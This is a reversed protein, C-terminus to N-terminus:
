LGSGDCSDLRALEEESARGEWRFGDPKYSPRRTTTSSGDQGTTRSDSASEVKRRVERHLQRRDIFTVGANHAAALTAEINLLYDLSEGCVCHSFSVHQSAGDWTERSIEPVPSPDIKSYAPLALSAFQFCCAPLSVPFELRYTQMPSTKQDETKFRYQVRAEFAHQVTIGAQDFLRSTPRASHDNPLRAAWQGKDLEDGPVDLFVFREEPSRDQLTEKRRSRITFRQLLSMQFKVIEVNSSPAPVELMIRLYGGVTLHASNLSLLVPGLGESFGQITHSYIFASDNQPYPVLWLLKSAKIVNNTLFGPCTAKVALRHFLRGYKCRQYGSIRHDIPFFTSFTYMSNPKLSMGAAEPVDKALELTTNQEFHGIAFSLSEVGTLALELKNIKSPPNNDTEVTIFVNLMEPPLDPENPRIFISASDTHLAIKLGGM